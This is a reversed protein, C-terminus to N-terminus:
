PRLGSSGFYTSRWHLKAGGSGVDGCLHLKWLGPTHYASLLGRCGLIRLAVGHSVAKGDAYFFFKLDNVRGRTLEARVDHLENGGSRRVDDLLDFVLHVLRDDLGARLNAFVHALQADLHMARAALQDGGGLAGAQLDSGGARM